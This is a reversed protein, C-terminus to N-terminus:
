QVTTDCSNKRMCTVFPPVTCTCKTCNDDVTVEDGVILTTNGFVCSATLNRINLGRVVKTKTTQCEFGIPCGRMNGPFVPACNQLLDSQYHIEIGCNIDRCNAANDTANFDKTCVCTKRTNKPQYTQGERYTQGDVECTALQAIADKGCVTGTSCCSDVEYTNICQQQMDNDFIEVCDVAACNFQPEGSFVTCSCAQSCPNSILSQPIPSRDGYSVGKYYCMTPDPHLDPCTFAEPCLGGDERAVPTCGLETYFSAMDCEGAMDTSVAGLMLMVFGIVAKM